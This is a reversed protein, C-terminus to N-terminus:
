RYARKTEFSMRVVSGFLERERLEERSLRAKPTIHRVSVESAWTQRPVDDGYKRGVRRETGNAMPLTNHATRLERNSRKGM